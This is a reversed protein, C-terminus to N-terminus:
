QNEIKASTLRLRFDTEQQSSSNGDDDEESDPIMVGDKLTLCEACLPEGNIPDMDMERFYPKVIKKLSECVKRHMTNRIKNRANLDSCVLNSSGNANAGTVLRWLSSIACKLPLLMQRENVRNKSIDGVTSRGIHYRSAISEYSEKKDIIDLRDRLETVTRQRKQPTVKEM